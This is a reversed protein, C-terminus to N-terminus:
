NACLALAKEAREIRKSYRGETDLQPYDRITDRDHQIDSYLSKRFDEREAATFDGWRAPLEVADEGYTIDSAAERGPHVLHAHARRDYFAAKYFIAVRRLGREDEIYSWMTHDSGVKQWGDPLTATTFMTDGSVVEGRTFGLAILDDWPGETPLNSSAVLQGQGQKEMGEIYNSQGDSMIGLLHLFPDRNKTNEITM